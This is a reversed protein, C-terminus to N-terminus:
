KEIKLEIGCEKAIFLLTGIKIQGNNNKLLGTYLRDTEHIKYNPYNESISHFYNRGFEGFSSCLAFGIKIWNGYVATIDIKTLKLHTILNEIVVNDTQNAQISKVNVKNIKQNVEPIYLEEYVISFPNCYLNPDYSLLMCRSVDKCLADITLDYDKKFLKELSLFQKLHSEVSQLVKIIVKIGKGGPSKFCIYTYPNECISNFTEEFKEVNDIDIQMLGSHKILGETNRNAFIGSITVAPLKMKGHKYEEGKSKRLQDLENKLYGYKIIEILDNIDMEGDPAKVSFLNSYFSFKYQKNKLDLNM